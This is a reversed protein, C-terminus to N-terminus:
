RTVADWVGPDKTCVAHYERDRVSEILSRRADDFHGYLEPSGVCLRHHAALEAWEDPDGPYSSWCDIWIWGAVGRWARAVDAPELESYPVAFERRGARMMRVRDALPFDLVFFEGSERADLVTLIRGMIGECKVNVLLPRAGANQVYDEFRPGEAFPDHAVVLEDGGVRVDFEVGVDPALARLGEITNVRHQYFRAM